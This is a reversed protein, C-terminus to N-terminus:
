IDAEFIGQGPPSGTRSFLNVAPRERCVRKGIVGLMRLLRFRAYCLRLSAAINHAATVVHKKPKGLVSDDGPPCCVVTGGVQGLILLGLEGLVQFPM